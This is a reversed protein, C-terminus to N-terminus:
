SRLNFGLVQLKERLAPTGNQLSVSIGRFSRRAPYNKRLQDFAAARNEEPLQRITRLQQDDAELPYANHIIESLINFDTKGAADAEIIPTEPLLQHHLQTSPRVGLAACLMEYMMLTGKVKGDLAYGAIHVTGLEVHDLLDWDIDPEHPWVDFVPKALKKQALAHSFALMDVVEGRATNIVVTKAKLTSLVAANFLGETQNRGARNLPVHLTIFDADCAEQFPRYVPDGSARKRPPDNLITEMGITRAMRDVRQGIHGAGIIGLRKGSLTEGARKALIFLASLVYEAVSDANAGAASAFLINRNKLYHQDIHNIGATATGVFQVTSGKLLAADVKTISRVILATADRVTRANITRGPLLSVSGLKSFIDKAFPINEDIVIKM